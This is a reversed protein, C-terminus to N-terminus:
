GPPLSHRGAQVVLRIRGHLRRITEVRDGGLAVGLHLRDLSAGECESALDCLLRRVHVAGGPGGRRALALAASRTYRIRAGAVTSCSAPHPRTPPAGGAGDGWGSRM